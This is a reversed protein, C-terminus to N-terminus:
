IFKISHIKIVIDYEKNGLAQALTCSTNSLGIVLIRM